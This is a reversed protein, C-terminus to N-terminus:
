TRSRLVLLVKGLSLWNHCSDIRSMLPFKTAVSADKVAKVQGQGEKYGAYLADALDMSAKSLTAFPRTSGDDGNERDLRSNNGLNIFVQGIHMNGGAFSLTGRLNSLSRGVLVPDPKQIGNQKTPPREGKYQPNIGAQAVFNKVVRHFYVGDYYKSKVFDAFAKSSQPALDPRVTIQLRGSATSSPPLSSHPTSVACEVLIPAPSPASRTEDAVRSILHTAIHDGKKPSRLRQGTDTSAPSSPPRLLLSFGIVLGFALLSVILRYALPIWSCKKRQGQKHQRRRRRRQPDSPWGRQDAAM